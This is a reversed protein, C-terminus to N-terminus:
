AAGGGIVFFSRSAIRSRMLLSPLATGVPSSVSMAFNSSAAPLLPLIVNARNLVNAPSFPTVSGSGPLPPFGPPIGGM